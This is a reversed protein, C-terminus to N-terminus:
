ETVPKDAFIASRFTKIEYSSLFIKHEGTIRDLKLFCLLEERIDAKDDVFRCCIALHGVNHSKAEDAIM